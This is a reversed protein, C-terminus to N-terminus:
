ISESVNLSGYTRKILDSSDDEHAAEDIGHVTETFTWCHNIAGTIKEHFNETFGTFMRASGYSNVTQRSAGRGFNLNHYFKFCLRV